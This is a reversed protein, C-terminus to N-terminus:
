PTPNSLTPNSLTFNVTDALAAASSLSMTLLLMLLGIAFNRKM